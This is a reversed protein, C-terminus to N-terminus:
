VKNKLKVIESYDPKAIYLTNEFGRGWVVDDDNSWAPANYYLSQVDITGLMPNSKLEEPKNIIQVMGQVLIFDVGEPKYIAKYKNMTEEAKKFTKFLYSTMTSNGDLDKVLVKLKIRKPFYKEKM